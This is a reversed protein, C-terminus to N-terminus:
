ARIPGSLRPAFLPDLFARNWADDFIAAAAEAGPRRRGARSCRCHVTGLSRAAAPLVARLAAFGMGQALNQHHTAAAWAQRSAMDRRMGDSRM